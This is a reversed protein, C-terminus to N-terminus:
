KQMSNKWGLFASDSRSDYSPRNSRANRLMGIIEYMVHGTLELPTDDDDGSCNMFSLGVPTDEPLNIPM